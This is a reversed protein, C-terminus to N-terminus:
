ESEPMLNILTSNIPQRYDLDYEILATEFGTAATTLTVSRELPLPTPFEFNGQTDTVTSPGGTLTLTAVAVGQSPDSCQLVRGRLRVAQRRLSLVIDTRPLSASFLHVSLPPIDTLPLTRTILQPQDLRAGVTFEFASRQYNPASADLRLQYTQQALRPFIAEPRGFVAFTGDPQVRERLPLNQREGSGVETVTLQVTLPGQPVADIALPDLVRGSVLVQLPHTASRRLSPWTM